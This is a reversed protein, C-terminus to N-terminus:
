SAIDERSKLAFDIKGQLNRIRQNITQAHNDEDNQLQLLDHAINLATMVAIRDTGIVRGGERIDRMKRDVLRASALLAEQEEDSCAVRYEKGLIHVVIPRTESNM